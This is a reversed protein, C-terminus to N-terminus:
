CYERILKSGVIESKMRNKYLFSTGNSSSSM